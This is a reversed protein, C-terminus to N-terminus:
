PHPRNRDREIEWTKINWIRMHLGTDRSHLCVGCHEHGDPWMDDDDLLQMLQRHAPNFQRWRREHEFLRMLYQHPTETKTKTKM